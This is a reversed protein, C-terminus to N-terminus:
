RADEGNVLRFLEASPVLTRGGVHILRVQGSRALKYITSRSVSLMWAADDISCALGPPRSEAFDSWNRNSM